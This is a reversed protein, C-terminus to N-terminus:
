EDYIMGVRMSIIQGSNIRISDRLSYLGPYDTRMLYKGPPIDSFLFTGNKLSISTFKNAENTLELTADPIEIEDPLIIIKGRIIATTTDMVAIVDFNLASKKIFGQKSSKCALVALALIFIYILNKM